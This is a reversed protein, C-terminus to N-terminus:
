ATKPPVSHMRTVLNSEYGYREQVGTVTDIFHTISQVKVPELPPQVLGQENLRLVSRGVVVMEDAQRGSIRFDQSAYGSMMYVRDITDIDYDAPLEVEAGEVLRRLVTSTIVTLPSYFQSDVNRNVFDGGHPAERFCSRDFGYM